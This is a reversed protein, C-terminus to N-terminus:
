RSVPIDRRSFVVAAIAYAALGVCILVLNNRLATGAVEEGGLILAQPDFLTLFSLYGLWTGPEWLSSVMDLIASLIFFGGALWMTRWRDRDFSSFLATVGTFCVTMCFLNVAGPLFDRAAVPGGELPVTALGIWNGLWLSAALLAAGVAAVVAVAFLVSVRRIPLTLILEYTGRAIEGSVAASGRAIAWGLCVLLTILHLYLFSIRGLPTVLQDLPVGVLDQVFDPLFSLIGAIAGMKFLSQLWVFFWGFLVLLVCSFILQARGDAIAKRWVAPNTM